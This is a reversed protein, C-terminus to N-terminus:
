RLRVGLWRLQSGAMSDCDSKLATSHRNGSSSCHLELQCNDLQQRSV